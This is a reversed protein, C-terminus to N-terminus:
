ELVTELEQLLEGARESARASAINEVTSLIQALNCNSQKTSWGGTPVVTQDEYAEHYARRSCPPKRAVKGCQVSLVVEM